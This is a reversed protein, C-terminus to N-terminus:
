HNIIKQALQEGLKIHYDVNGEIDKKIIVGNKEYIGIIYMINNELQAYAGIPIHCGGNLTKMFSREAEVCLRVEISDIKQLINKIENGKVIEIGLAGQGIAPVVQDITFLSSVKNELGLRKIGAYALIIGDLNDSKIKEIRTLINGRLPLIKLDPRLAKIQSNRRKSSTGIKAGIPLEDFTRGDLSIFCDRVDERVPMAVIDFFDEIKTPVDKMSHVAAHAEKELLANEIEKVFVGKGGIKDLSVEIIKDGLTKVLLKECDIGAKNKLKNIVYDTQALALKSQRTAIKYKM